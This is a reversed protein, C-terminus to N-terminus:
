FFLPTLFPPSQERKSTLDIIRPESWSPPFATVGGILKYSHGAKADLLLNFKHRTIAVYNGDQMTMVKTGTSDWWGEIHHVGPTLDYADDWAMIPIREPKAWGDISHIVLSGLSKKLIVM